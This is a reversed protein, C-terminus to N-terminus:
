RGLAKRYLTLMDQLAGFEEPPIRREHILAKLIKVDLGAARAKSYAEKKDENLDRIQADLTEIAKVAAKLAATDLQRNSM